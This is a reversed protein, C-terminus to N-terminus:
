NCIYFDPKIKLFRETSQHTSQTQTTIEDM